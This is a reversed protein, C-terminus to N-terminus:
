GARLGKFDVQSENKTMLYSIIASRTADLRTAPSDSLNVSQDLRKFSMVFLNHVLYRGRAIHIYVRGLEIM